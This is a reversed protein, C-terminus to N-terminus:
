ECSADLAFVTSVAQVIAATFRHVQRTAIRDRSPAISELKSTLTPRAVVHLLLVDQAWWLLAVVAVAHETNKHCM